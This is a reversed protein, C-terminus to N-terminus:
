LEPSSEEEELTEDTTEEQIMEGEQLTEEGSASEMDGAYAQAPDHTTKMGEELFEQPYAVYDGNGVGDEIKYQMMEADYTGLVVTRKELAGNKEAWVYPKKDLDAIFAENLWIGPERQSMGTDHEIYVHQGLLLGQSSELDVYFPYSTSTTQSSDESGSSYYMSSSNNQPNKTDVASYTGTWVQKEDVRSRVVAPSGETIESINQENVRGKVRYEGTALITIFAQGASDGYMETVTQGQNQVSKVVGKMESTVTSNDIQSQIRNIEVEKAKRDYESKKLDMQASQIQTTYSFQEEEPANKKEKELQQIQAKLNSMESDARELDLKAQQIDTELTATDYTFLPTGVEVNDGAKVLIEKIERESDKQIELTKQSEVVGALRQTGSMDNMSSVSMVYALDEAKKDGAGRIIFIGAALGGICVAGCIGGIIKHKKNM